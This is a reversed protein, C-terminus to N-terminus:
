QKNVMLDFENREGVYYSLAYEVVRERDDFAISEVYHVALNKETKLIIAIEDQIIQADVVRKIHSLWINFESELTNYIPSKEFNISQIGRILDIPYYAEKYVLPIEDNSYILRVKLIDSSSFCDQIAKPCNNIHLIEKKILKVSPIFGMNILDTEIDSFESFFMSKIEPEKVFTGRSKYRIIYNEDLLEKYAQRVVPRSIGFEACIEEETPLKDNPKLHGAKIAHKISDKLQAYLPTSSNKFINIYKM